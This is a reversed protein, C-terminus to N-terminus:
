EKQAAAKQRAQKKGPPRGPGKKKPAATPEVTTPEVTTPAPAETIAVEEAPPAEVVEPTPTPIPKVEDALAAEAAMQKFNAMAIDAAEQAMKAVWASHRPAKAM